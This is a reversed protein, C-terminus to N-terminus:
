LSSALTGPTARFLTSSNKLGTYTRPKKEQGCVIERRKRVTDGTTRGQRERSNRMVIGGTRTENEGSGNEKGIKKRDRKRGTEAVNGISIERQFM